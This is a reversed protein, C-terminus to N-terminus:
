VYVRARCCSTSPSTSATSQALLRPAQGSVVAGPVGAAAQVGSRGRDVKTGHGVVMFRPEVVERVLGVRREEVALECAGFLVRFPGAEVPLERLDLVPM